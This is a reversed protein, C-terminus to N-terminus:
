LLKTLLEDVALAALGLLMEIKLLRSLSALLSLWDKRWLRKFLVCHLPVISLLAIAGYTLGFEHRLWPLPLLFLYAAFIMSILVRLIQAPLEATTGGGTQRDGSEDQLDKIIERSLNLLLALLAPILLREFRPARLGGYLLAYAVLVSVLINGALPTRKLRLTYISLILLPIITAAGALPGVSFASSLSVVCLVVSFLAAWLTTTSGQVLPRTPHSIKDTDIDRLDNIVNGYATAAATAVCLLLLRSVDSNQALWFGLAVAVTAMLVNGPRTLLVLAHLHRSILVLSNM